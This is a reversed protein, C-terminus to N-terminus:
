KMRERERERERERRERCVLKKESGRLNATSDVVLIECQNVVVDRTQLSKEVQLSHVLQRGPITLTGGRGLVLFSFDDSWFQLLDNPLSQRFEPWKQFLFLFTNCFVLLPNIWKLLVFWFYMAWSISGGFRNWMDLYQLNGEWVPNWGPIIIYM